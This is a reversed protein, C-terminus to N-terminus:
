REEGDARMADLARQVATVDGPQRWGDDAPASPPPPRRRRPSRASSTTPADGARRARRRPRAARRARGRAARHAPGGPAPRPPCLVARAPDVARRCRVDEAWRSFADGAPVWEGDVRDLFFLVTAGPAFRTRICAGALADPHPAGLELPDSPALEAGLSMGALPFEQGADAGQDRGAPQVTISGEPRPRRQGPSAASCSRTPRRWSRSTARRATARSSRARRRRCPAAALALPAALSALLRLPAMGGFRARRRGNALRAAGSRRSDGCASGRIFAGRPWEARRAAHGSLRTPPCRLRGRAYGGPMMWLRFPPDRHGPEQNGGCRDRQENGGGRLRLQGPAHGPAAPAVAPWTVPEAPAEAPAPTVADAAGDLARGVADARGRVRAASRALSRTASAVACACVADLVTRSVASSALSTSASALARVRARASVGAPSARALVPARAWTSVSGSPRQRSGLRPGRRGPACDGPGRLLAVAIGDGKEQPAPAAPLRVRGRRQAAHAGGEGMPLPSATARKRHAPAEAAGEGEWAAARRPGGGEGMPLPSATARKRHPRPGPPM